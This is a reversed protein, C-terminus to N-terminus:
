FAKLFLTNENIRGNLTAEKTKVANYRNELSKQTGKFDDLFEQPKRLTKGV